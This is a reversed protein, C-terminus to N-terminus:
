DRSRLDILIYGEGDIQQYHEQLTLKVVPQRELEDFLTVVFYDFGSIQRQFQSAISPDEPDYNGGAAAQM